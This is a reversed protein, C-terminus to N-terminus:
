RKSCFIFFNTSYNCDLISLDKSEWQLDENAVLGSVLSNMAFICSISYKFHVTRKLRHNLGSAFHFLTNKNKCDLRYFLLCCNALEQFCEFEVVYIRARDNNITILHLRQYFWIAWSVLKKYHIEVNGVVLYVLAVERVRKRRLVWLFLGRSSSSFGDKIVILDFM